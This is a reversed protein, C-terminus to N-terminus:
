VAYGGHLKPEPSQLPPCCCLAPRKTLSVVTHPLRNLDLRFSRRHNCRDLTAKACSTQTTLCVEAFLAPQSNLPNLPAFTKRMFFGM